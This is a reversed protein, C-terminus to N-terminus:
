TAAAVSESARPSVVKADCGRASGAGSADPRIRTIPSSGNAERPGPEYVRVRVIVPPGAGTTRPAENETSWYCQGAVRRKGADQNRVSAGHPPATTALRRLEREGRRLPPWGRLGSRM